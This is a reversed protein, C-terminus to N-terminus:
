TFAHTFERREVKMKGIQVSDLPRSNFGRGINDEIIQNYGSYNFVDLLM